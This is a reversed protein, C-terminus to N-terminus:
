LQSISVKGKPNETQNEHSFYSSISLSQPNCSSQDTLQEASGKRRDGAWERSKMPQESGRGRHFSQCIRELSCRKPLAPRLGAPLLSCGLWGGFWRGSPLSFTELHRWSKGSGCWSLVRSIEIGPSTATEVRCPQASPPCCCRSAIATVPVGM